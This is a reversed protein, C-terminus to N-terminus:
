TTFVIGLVHVVPREGLVTLAKLPHPQLVPRCELDYIQRHRRGEYEISQPERRAVGVEVDAVGGHEDGGEVIRL